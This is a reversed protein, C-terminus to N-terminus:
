VSVLIERLSKKHAFSLVTRLNAIVEEIYEISEKRSIPDPHRPSPPLLYQNVCPYFGMDVPNETDYVKGISQTELISQLLSM